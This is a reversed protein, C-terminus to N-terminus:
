GAKRVVALEDASLELRMAELDQAMHTPSTTGTLPLMGIGRAFAFVVQPTTVGHRAAIAGVDPNRLVHVNATLLSFGQYTIGHDACFERVAADWGLQAYCRNQVYTPKVEALEWLQELQARDVNSVGLVRTRGAAHEAEMARWAARDMAGLGARQSPGHLVFSDLHDVGLHELSSSLSQAVQTEVPAAPDYPLRHDQGGVFTFKTQLTLESRDHEALWTQVAEGVGAEHYHKRQNATDIARFGAALAQAVLAATDDEKWATGYMIEPLTKADATTM